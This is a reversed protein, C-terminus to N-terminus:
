ETKRRWRDVDNPVIRVGGGREDIVRAGAPTFGIALFRPAGEARVHLTRWAASTQDAERRLISRETVLWPTGVLDLAMQMPRHGLDSLEVEATTPSLRVITSAIPRGSTSPTEISASFADRENGCTAVALPGLKTLPAAYVNLGGDPRLFAARARKSDKAGVILTGYPGSALAHVNGSLPIVTPAGWTTGDRTEWFELGGTDDTEATAVLLRGPSGLAAELDGLPEDREPLPLHLWKGRRALYVHRPGVLAYGLEGLYVISRTAEVLEAHRPASARDPPAVHYPQDDIYFYLDEGSRVLVRGDAQFAVNGPAISLTPTAGDARRPPKAPTEHVLYKRGEGRLESQTMLLTARYTTQPRNERVAQASWRAAIRELAPVLAAAFSAVDAYRPEGKLVAPFRACLLKYMSGAEPTPEGLAADIRPAAGRALVADLEDLLEGAGAFGPHLRQHHTRRLSRREGQFWAQDNAHWPEGGVVFWILAALAHVDTWTGVLPNRIGGIGVIQEPAAYGITAAALGTALGEVRAIGYDTMKPIEDDIPGAVLINDPKLDRHLVGLEHLALLGEIMGSALRLARLPDVGEPARAIRDTLTTGALGGDVYEIALWPLRQVGSRTQVDSLGCGFFGVTFPTPPTRAALRQYVVCERKFLDFADIGLSALQQLMGLQMFKVALARPTLPSLTRAPPGDEREALFVTAMGGTGLLKQLRIGSPVGSDDDVLEASSAVLDHVDDYSTRLQPTPEPNAVSTPTSFADIQGARAHAEARLADALEDHATTRTSLARTTPVGAVRADPEAGSRVRRVDLQMEAADAYRADPDPQLAREVIASIRPPVKPDDRDGVHVHRGTLIRFITAGLAYIDARGDVERGFGLAQEPAMYAPTGLQQGVRTLRSEGAIPQLRAIGFDLVKVSGDRCLFLNGPKLDRHVIGREHAVTLVDLTQDVVELAREPTMTAGRDLLDLISEGDLLEMVIYPGIRPDEDDDLVKVVGHHVISNALYAERLFRQRTIPDRVLPTHLVKIAARVGNRHKGRYVVAAGGIGLVAELEWRQRLVCGIRARADELSTPGM